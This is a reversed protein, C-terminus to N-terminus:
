RTFKIKKYSACFSGSGAEEEVRKEVGNICLYVNAYTKLRASVRVDETKQIEAHVATYEASSDDIEVHLQTIAQLIKAIQQHVVHGASDPGVSKELKLMGEQLKSLVAKKKEILEHLAVFKEDLEKPHGVTVHTKVYVDNGLVNAKVGGTAQCYGGILYGKGGKQGLLVEGKASVASNLIYENVIVDQGSVVDTM